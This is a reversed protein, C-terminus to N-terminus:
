GVMELAGAIEVGGSGKLTVLGVFSASAPTLAMIGGGGTFAAGGGVQIKVTKAKLQLKGAATIAAAGSIQLKTAKAASALRNGSATEVCAGGIAETRDGGVALSLSGDTSTITRAGDVLETTKGSVFVEYEATAKSQVSGGVKVTYGGKAIEAWAGKATVSRDGGVSEAEKGMVKTSLSGEVKAIEDGTVSKTRDGAVALRADKKVTTSADEDVELSQAGEIATTADKTVALTDDSGISETWDHQITADFDKATYISLEMAGSKDQISIGTRKEGRPSSLTELVTTAQEGPLALPPPHAGDFLRAVILPRDPDGDLYRVAVEWGARALLMSGGMLPQAVRMWSSSADGADTSRDFALKAKARGHRDTLIEDGPPAAVVGAHTVGIRPAPTSRAPRFPLDRPSCVFHNEYAAPRAVHTVERLLYYGVPADERESTLEFTAGACMAVRDSRGEGIVKGSALEEARVKALAAGDSQTAYGGPWEFSEAAPADAAVARSTLDLGPAEFSWDRLSVADCTVSHELAFERIGTGQGEAELPIQEAAIPTFAHPGDSLELVTGGADDRAFFFIGEAELLRMAFALDSEDHQACWPRAPPSRGLSWTRKAAVGGGSLVEEVIDKASKALFRRTDRRLELLALEHALDIGYVLQGVDTDRAEIGTIVLHFHRGTRGEGFTLHAKEGIAKAGDFPSEVTVQLSARTPASIREVVIAEVVDVAPLASCNLRARTADPANTAM